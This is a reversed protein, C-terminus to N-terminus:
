IDDMLASLHGFIPHNGLQSHLPAKQRVPELMSCHLPLKLWNHDAGRDVTFTDVAETAAPCWFKSNFRDLQTNCPSAFRDVTHPGWMSNTMNFM